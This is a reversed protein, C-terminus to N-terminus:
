FLKKLGDAIGGLKDSTLKVKVAEVIKDKVEDPIEVGAAKEVAGIPDTAFQKKLAEDKTIKEVIKTVQEKIDM